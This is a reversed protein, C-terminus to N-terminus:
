QLVELGVMCIDDQFKSDGKFDTLNRYLFQIIRSISQHGSEALLTHLIEEFEKEERNRAETLGDTYFLIKDGKNLHIDREEFTLNQFSGLLNGRSEVMELKNGLERIIVPYTHGARAYTFRNTSSDYIGYFATFFNEGTMGYLNDNIYRLLKEPSNRFKGSTEVLMKVMSTILAAHVGHGSVDGIIIGIKEEEHFPIFDYYDGGVEHMPLYLTYLSYFDSEPPAQPILNHQIKRALELDKQMKMNSAAIISNKAAITQDNEFTRKRGRNQIEALVLAAIISICPNILVSLMDAPIDNSYLLISIFFLFPIMYLPLLFIAGFPTGILIGFIVVVMGIIAGNFLTSEYTMLSLFCMMAMGSFLFTFHFGKVLLFNKRAGSYLITLYVLGIVIPIGRVAIIIDALKLVVLDQYLLFALAPLSLFTIIKGYRRVLRNQHAKYQRKFDQQEIDPTNM